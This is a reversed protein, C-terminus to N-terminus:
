CNSDCTHGVDYLEIRMRFLCAIQKDEPNKDIKNMISNAIDDISNSVISNIYEKKLNEKRIYKKDKESLLYCGEDLNKVYITTLLSVNHATQHKM